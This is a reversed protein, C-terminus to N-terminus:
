LTFLYIFLPKAASNTLSNFSKLRNNLSYFANAHISNMLSTASRVFLTELRNESLKEASHQYFRATFKICNLM